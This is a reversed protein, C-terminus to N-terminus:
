IIGLIGSLYLYMLIIFVIILFIFTTLEKKRDEDGEEAVAESEVGSWERYEADEEGM